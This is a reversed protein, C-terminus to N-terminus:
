EPKQPKLLLEAACDLTLVGLWPRLLGVLQAANELTAPEVGPGGTPEIIFDYAKAMYWTVWRLASLPTGHHQRAVITGVAIV